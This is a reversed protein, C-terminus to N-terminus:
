LILIEHFLILDPSESSGMLIHKTRCVKGWVGGVGVLGSGGPRQEWAGSGDGAGRREM